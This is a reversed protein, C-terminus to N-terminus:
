VALLAAARTLGAVRGPQEAEADLHRLVGQVSLFQRVAPRMGVVVVPRQASQAALIMDELARAATTDITPMDSLDLVLVEYDGCEALMNVMGKAAGFSMPGGLQFLLVRGDLEALLQQEQTSLPAQEDIARIARISALQMDTQRKLFVLSAMGMGVAVASILDVFVTIFFVSLMIVVGARPTHRLRKLYDWDVIDTGVKILIGALVVHPIHSAAGGLGLAVALLVLAHLAGSVPTKGGARVNVVTRMTAGAGPLGGFVGAIANGIGQGILERDSKHQTRTINDAVLSTLLSDITGLLALTLASQLM